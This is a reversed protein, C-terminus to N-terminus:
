RKIIKVSNVIQMMAKTENAMSGTKTETTLKAGGVGVTVESMDDDLKEVILYGLKKSSKFTEDVDIKKHQNQTAKYVIDSKLDEKPNFFLIYTKSGNKLIINNASKEKIEYGFPLYFEAEKLKQNPKESKEKFAAEASKKTLKIEEKFSSNGCASLIYVSVFLVVIIKLSRIM